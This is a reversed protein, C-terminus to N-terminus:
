RRGGVPPPAHPPPSDPALPISIDNVVWRVGEVGRASGEIRLRQSESRAEGHLIVVRDEVTVEVGSALEQEALSKEVKRELRADEGLCAALALTSAILSVGATRMKIM